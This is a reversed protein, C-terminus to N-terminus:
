ACGPIPEAGPAVPLLAHAPLPEADAPVTRANGALALRHIAAAWRGDRTLREPQEIGSDTRARLMRRELERDGLEAVANMWLTLPHM